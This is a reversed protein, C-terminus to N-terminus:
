PVSFKGNARVLDLAYVSDGKKALSVTKEKILKGNVSVKVTASTGDHSLCLREIFKTIDAANVPISGGSLYGILVDISIGLLGALLATPVSKCSELYQLQVRYTGDTMADALVVREPEEKPPFALWTPTGYPSWNLPAPHAKDCVYGFPHELILNVNRYDDDFASDSGNEFSMELKVVEPGAGPIGTASVPITISPKSPDNSAIVLLGSVPGLGTATFGVQLQTYAGAAIADVVTPIAFLDTSPMLGGWTYSVNLPAGGENSLALSATVSRGLPVNGLDIVLPAYALKPPTQANGAVPVRTEGKDTTIVLEVAHKSTSRPNYRLELPIVASGDQGVPMLTVPGVFPTPMTFDQTEGSFAISKVTLPAVGTGQNSLTLTRIGQRGQAVYGFDVPNPTVQLKPVGLFNVKIPVRLQPFEKDDSLVSVEDSSEGVHRQTFSVPMERARGPFIELPFAGDCLECGFGADAGKALRAEFVTLTCNGINRLSLTETKTAVDITGFNLTYPDPQLIPNGNIVNTCAKTQAPVCQFEDCLEGSQCASDERCAAPTLKDRQCAMTAVLAGAVLLWVQASNMRTLSM